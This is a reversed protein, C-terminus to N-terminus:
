IVTLCIIPVIVDPNDYNIQGDPSLQYNPMTGGSRYGRSERLKRVRKRALFGRIGAQIRVIMIVKDSHKLRSYQNTFDNNTKIDNSDIESKGCCGLTQGM